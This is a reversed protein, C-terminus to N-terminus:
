KKQELRELRDLIRRHEDRLRDLEERLKRVDEGRDAGQAIATAALRASRKVRGDLDRAAQEHLTGLSKPDRREALSAIAAMQVRLHGSRVLDELRDRIMERDKLHDKGLKGLATAASSRLTDARDPALEGLLIPIAEDKGLEGLGIVAGRRAMDNWSPRSLQAVLKDFATSLRTRGLSIAASFLTSPSRESEHMMAVLASAAKEDHRFSGLADAVASRTRPDADTLHTVLADRAGESRVSGLARAAEYRVFWSKDGKLASGLAKVAAPTASEGLARAARVRTAGDKDGALCAAWQEDSQSVKGAHLITAGPDVAIWRVKGPIDVLFTHAAGTIPLRRTVAGKETEIRVTLGFRFLPTLEDTKQTQRVVVTCTGKEQSFSVDLVPHGGHFVWQDFFWELNRGTVDEIARRLDDTVVSGFRHRDLYHKVARWFLDEGLEERLM